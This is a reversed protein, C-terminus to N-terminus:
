NNGGKNEAQNHFESDGPADRDGSGKGLGNNKHGDDLEPPPPPPDKKDIHNIYTECIPHHGQPDHGHEQFCTPACSALVIVGALLKMM